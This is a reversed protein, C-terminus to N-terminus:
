FAMFLAFGILGVLLASVASSVIQQNDAKPFNARRAAGKLGDEGVYSGNISANLDMVIRRNRLTSRTPRPSLSTNM